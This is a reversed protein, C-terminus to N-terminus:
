AGSRRFMGKITPSNEGTRGHCYEIFGPYNLNEKQTGWRLNDPKNNRADEDEHLVNPKDNPPIGHFALCVLRAVMYNKAPSRGVTLIYRGQGSSRQWSGIRPKGDNWRVRGLSSAKIEPVGPVERWVENPLGLDAVKIAYDERRKLTWPSRKPREDM